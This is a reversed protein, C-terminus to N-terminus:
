EGLDINAGLETWEGPQDNFTYTGDGYLRAVGTGTATLSINLGTAKIKINEGSVTGSADGRCVYKRVNGNLLRETEIGDCTIDLTANSAGFDKVVLKGEISISLDGSGRVVARGDGDATLTGTGLRTEQAMASFPVAALIFVALLGIFINRKTNM